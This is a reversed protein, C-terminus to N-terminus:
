IKASVVEPKSESIPEKPAAENKPSEIPTSAEKLLTSIDEGEKGIMNRNHQGIQLVYKAVIDMECGFPKESYNYVPGRLATNGGLRWVKEWGEAHVMRFNESEFYGWVQRFADEPLVDDYIVFNDTQTVLQM